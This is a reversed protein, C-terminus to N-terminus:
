KPTPAGHAQSAVYQQVWERSWTLEGSRLDKLLRRLFALEARLMAVQYEDEILFLRPLFGFPAIGEAHATLVAKLTRTRQELSAIVDAPTVLPLLSLAVPLIPFERAPEALTTQLWVQLTAQGDPTLEYTTKEPRHEQRTTEGVAILGARLLRDITQYISNRQAINVVNEKNREKILQQMRYPHMPSEALLALLLMALPSRRTAPGTM